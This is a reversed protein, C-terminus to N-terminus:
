SRSTSRIHAQIDEVELGSPVPKLFLYLIGALGLPVVVVWSLALQWGIWEVAASVLLPGVAIGLNVALSGCVALGTGRLETPFLEAIYAFKVAATGYFFISMVAFAAMTPYLGTPVWLMFLFGGAGLLTFIVVTTRRTLVFEGIYAAALYGVISVASGVGVLYASMNIPLGRHETFYTPLLFSSGGYAIVFLFQASFLTITRRRLAPSLMTQLSQRLSPKELRRGALSNFRETERLYRHIVWVYPLSILAVLFVARWGFNILIPAALLSAIFWGFPYAIQLAGAFLGRYRAPAEETVIAGTAPYIAGGTGVAGARALALILLGGTLAHAAVFLSSGATGVMLILKRGRQDTLHGMWVQALGGLIYAGAIVMGIDRLSAGFDKRIAPVAYAFLALDLQSLAYAFFCIAFSAVSRREIRPPFPV